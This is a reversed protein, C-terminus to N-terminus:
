SCSIQVHTNTQTHTHTHTSSEHVCLRGILQMYDSVHLMQFNTQNPPITQSQTLDCRWLCVELIQAFNEFHRSPLFFFFFFFFLFIQRAWQKKKKKKKMFSTKSVKERCFRRKKFWSDRELIDLKVTIESFITQTASIKESLLLCCAGSEYQYFLGM